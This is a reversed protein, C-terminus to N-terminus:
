KGKEEENLQKEEILKNEENKIKEEENMENEEEKKEVNGINIIEENNNIEMAQNFEMGASKRREIIKIEEADMKKKKEDDIENLINEWFLKESLYFFILEFFISFNLYESNSNDEYSKKSKRKELNINFSSLWKSDSSNYYGFYEESKKEFHM